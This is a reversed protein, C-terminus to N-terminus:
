EQPFFVFASSHEKLFDVFDKISPSPDILTSYAFRSCKAFIYQYTEM